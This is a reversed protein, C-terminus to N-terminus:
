VSFWRGEVSLETNPFVTRAEELLPNLDRYRASYHGLLLKKAHTEQAIEGAELATTHFTEKARDVMDHLFTSEHYMLNAKQVYPLYELTRVTDSCYVYSRSLPAPLSLDDARYVTGSEDVYDFGKKIMPFYATPINLEQVVDGLLTRARPGEDFRFGTCAIRHKLPFASVKLTRNEFIVGPQEPSIPHFILNYRLITESHLFQVDLIEKLAPPGYL